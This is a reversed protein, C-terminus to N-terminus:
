KKEQSTELDRRVSEEIEQALSDRPDPRLIGAREEGTSKRSSFSYVTQSRHTINNHLTAAIATPAEMGSMAFALECAKCRQM